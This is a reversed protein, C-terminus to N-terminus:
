KAPVGEVLPNKDIPGIPYGQEAWMQLMYDCLEKQQDNTPLPTHIGRRQRSDLTEHM